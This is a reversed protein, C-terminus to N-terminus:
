RGRGHRQHKERDQKQGRSFFAKILTIISRSEQAQPEPRDEGAEQPWSLNANMRAEYSQQLTLDQIHAPVNEIHALYAACCRRHGDILYYGGEARKSLVIPQRVGDKRISDLLPRMSEASDSAFPNSGPLTFISSLAVNEIEETHKQEM